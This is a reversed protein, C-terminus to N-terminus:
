IEVCGGVCLSRTVSSKIPQTGGKTRRRYREKYNMLKMKVMNENVGRRSFGANRMSFTIGQWETAPKVNRVNSTVEQWEFHGGEGPPRYKEHKFHSIAM